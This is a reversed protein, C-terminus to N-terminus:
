QQGFLFLKDELGVLNQFGRLDTESISFHFTKIYILFAGSTPAKEIFMRDELGVLNEFGRLDTESISFHFTKILL